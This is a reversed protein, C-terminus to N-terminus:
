QVVTVTGGNSPNLHDHFGWTGVKSFTFQYTEGQNLGHLADFGPLDTHVPHPNSAPWHQKSDTNKFVVVTGSKVTINAPSFGSSTIDIEATGSQVQANTQDAGSSTASNTSTSKDCAAAILSLSLALILVKYKM